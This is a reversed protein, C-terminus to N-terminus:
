LIPLIGAGSQEAPCSVGMVKKREFLHHAIKRFLRYVFRCLYERFLSFTAHNTDCLAVSTKKIDNKQTHASVPLRM